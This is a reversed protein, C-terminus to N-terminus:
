NWIDVKAYKQKYNILYCRVEQLVIVCKRGMKGLNAGINLADESSRIGITKFKVKM